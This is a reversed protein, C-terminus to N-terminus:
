REHSFKYSIRGILFFFYYEGRYAYVAAAINFVIYSVNFLAAFALYILYSTGATAPTLWLHLTWYVLVANCLTSPVMSLFAQLSHFVVFPSKNRNWYYYIAAAILNIMPFPLGLAFAAFMMLYGGMADEKEKMEPVPYYSEGPRNQEIDPLSKM